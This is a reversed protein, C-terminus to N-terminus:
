RKKEEQKKIKEIRRKHRLDKSFETTLWAKIIRMNKMGSFKRSRLCLINIDNDERGKIASYSDYGVAARIGKIKNAAVVMGTGTGCVLIGKDKGKSKAVKKAVKFAFDPYDDKKNKDFSGFDEYKVDWKGLMRKIKEKLEVGAHDAGLYIKM